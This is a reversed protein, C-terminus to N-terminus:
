RYKGRNNISLPGRRFSWTQKIDMQILINQASGSDFKVIQHIDDIEEDINPHWYRIEYEGSPLEFSADGKKDTLTFFPTDIVYIYASMWDHINCGLSVVGVKDFFVPNAPSGKYLPLDFNKAPSFSYVHHRIQDHNPFNIATGIQIPTVHAIFEKDVQDIVITKNQPISPQDEADQVFVSIVAHEVPDGSQNSVRVTLTENAFIFPPFLCCVLRMAAVSNSSSNM